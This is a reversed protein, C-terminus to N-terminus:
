NNGRMELNSLLGSHVAREKVCATEIKEVMRVRNTIEISRYTSYYVAKSKGFRLICINSVLYFHEILLKKM